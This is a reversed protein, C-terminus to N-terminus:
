PSPYDALLEVSEVDGGDELADRAVLRDTADFPDFPYGCRSVALCYLGQRRARSNINRGPVQKAHRLFRFLGCGLAFIALEAADAFTARRVLKDPDDPHNRRDWGVEITEFVPFPLGPNVGARVRYGREFRRSGARERVPRDCHFSWPNVPLPLLKVWELLSTDYRDLLRDYFAFVGPLEVRDVFQTAQKRDLPM